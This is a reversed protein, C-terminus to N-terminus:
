RFACPETNRLAPIVALFGFFFFFFFTCASPSFFFGFFFRSQGFRFSRFSRGTM